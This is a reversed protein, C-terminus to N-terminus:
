RRRKRKVLQVVQDPQKCVDEEMEEVDEEMTRAVVMTKPVLM